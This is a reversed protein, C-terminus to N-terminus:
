CPREFGMHIQSAIEKSQQYYHQHQFIHHHHPLTFGSPILPSLYPSSLTVKRIVENNGSTEVGSPMLPSLYLSSLTVNRIVENNGSTRGWLAHPTFSLTVKRIVENNGSARCLLIFETV